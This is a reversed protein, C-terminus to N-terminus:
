TNGEKEVYFAATTLTVLPDILLSNIVAGLVGIWLVIEPTFTDMLFVSNYNIFILPLAILMPFGVLFLTILPNRFFFVVSRGIAGPFKANTLVLVPIAYALVSQVVLALVQSIVVSIPGMWMEAGAMLLKKHGTSFYKLLVIHIQRNTMYFIFLLVLIVIFLHGYKRFAIFAPKKYLLAIAIGTLLSGAFVSLAMRAFNALKPLLFFNGPYHLYQEGWFTTIIPGLVSRFPAQPALYLGILSILELGAFILFPLFIGPNAKLARASYFYSRRFTDFGSRKEVMIDSGKM